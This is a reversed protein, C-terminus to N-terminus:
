IVLLLPFSWEAPGTNPTSKAKASPFIKQGGKTQQPSLNETFPIPTPWATPTPCFQKNTVGGNNLQMCGGDALTPQAYVAFFSMTLLSFAICLAYIIKM